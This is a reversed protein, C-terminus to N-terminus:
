LQREAKDTWYASYRAVRSGCPLSCRALETSEREYLNDASGWIYIFLQPTGM